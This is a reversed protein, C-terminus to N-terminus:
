QRSSPTLQGVASSAPLTGKAYFSPVLHHHTDVKDMAPQAPWGFIQAQVADSAMVGAVHLLSAAQYSAFYLSSLLLM